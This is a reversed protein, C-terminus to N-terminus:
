SKTSEGPVWCSGNTVRKTARARMGCNTNQTPNVIRSPQMAPATVASKRAARAPVGRAQGMLNPSALGASDLHRRMGAGSWEQDRAGNHTCRERPGKQAWSPCPAVGHIATGGFLPIFCVFGACAISSRM